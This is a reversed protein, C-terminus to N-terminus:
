PQTREKKIVEVAQQFISVSMNSKEFRNFLYALVRPGLISAFNKRKSMIVQTTYNPNM